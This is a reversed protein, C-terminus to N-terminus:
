KRVQKVFVAAARNLTGRCYDKKRGLAKKRCFLTKRCKEALYHVRKQLYVCESHPFYLQM